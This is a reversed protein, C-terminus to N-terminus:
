KVTSKENLPDAVERVSEIKFIQKLVPPINSKAKLTLPYKRPRGRSRKLIANGDSDYELPVGALKKEEYTLADM